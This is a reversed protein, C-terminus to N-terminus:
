KNIEKILAWPYKFISNLKLSYFFLQNVTLTDDEDCLNELNSIMRIIKAENINKNTMVPM